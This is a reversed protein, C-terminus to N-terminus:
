TKINFYINNRGHNLAIYMETKHGDMHPDSHLKILTGVIIGLSITKWHKVM